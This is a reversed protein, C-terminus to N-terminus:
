MGLAARSIPEVEAMSNMDGFAKIVLQAISDPADDHENKGITVFMAMEALAREYSASREYYTIGQETMMNRDHKTDDLFIIM